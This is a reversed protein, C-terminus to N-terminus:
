VTTRVDKTGKALEKQLEEDIAVLIDDIHESLYIRDLRNACVALEVGLGRRFCIGWEKGIKSFGINHQESWAEVGVGAELLVRNVRLLEDSAADAMENILRAKEVIRNLTEKRNMQNGKQKISRLAGELGKGDRGM